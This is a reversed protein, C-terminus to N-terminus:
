HSPNLSKPCNISAIPKSIHARDQSPGALGEPVCSDLRSVLSISCSFFFFLFDSYMAEMSWVNPFQANKHAVTDRGSVPLLHVLGHRNGVRRFFVPAHPLLPLPRHHVISTQHTMYSYCGPLQSTPDKALGVWPEGEVGGAMSKVSQELSPLKGQYQNKATYRTQHM